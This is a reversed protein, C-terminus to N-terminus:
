EWSNLDILKHGNAMKTWFSETIPRNGCKWKTEGNKNPSRSHMQAESRCIHGPLFLQIRLSLQLRFVKLRFQIRSNTHTRKFPMWTYNIPCLCIIVMLLNKQKLCILRFTNERVIMTAHMSIPKTNIIVHEISQRGNPTHFPIPHLRMLLLLLLFINLANWQIFDYPPFHHWSNKWSSYNMIKLTKWLCSNFHIGSRM